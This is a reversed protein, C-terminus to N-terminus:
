NENRFQLFATDIKHRDLRAIETLNFILREVEKKFVFTQWQDDYGDQPISFDFVNMFLM